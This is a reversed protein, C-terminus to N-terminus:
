KKNVEKVSLWKLGKVKRCHKAMQLADSKKEFGFKQHDDKGYSAYVRYKATGRGTM